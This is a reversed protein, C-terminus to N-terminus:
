KAVGNTEDVVQFLAGLDYFDVALFTPTRGHKAKCAAVHASLAEYTNATEGNEPTAVPNGIWHNILFLANEKKGRNVDCGTAAIKELSDYTYPVDWAVDWLHHYYAPPPHGNEATVLLRTDKAVLERLTPWAAGAEHTIVYRELGSERLVRATDEASVKDEILLALVEGRHKELFSRYIAFADALRISGLQCAAHCLQPEGEFDHTDILFARVGDDLQRALGFNQNPVTWKDAANSMANHTAAFTVEDLRRDCLAEHGNCTKPIEQTPAASTDDDGGCAAVLTASLALLTLRGPTM